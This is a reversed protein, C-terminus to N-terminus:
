KFEELYLKEYEKVISKWSYNEIVFDATKKSLIEMDVSNQIAWNIKDSLDKADKNKFYLVENNPFVTKNEPIDSCIIKTKISAAELLMISMGESESPFIFLSSNQILGLLNPLSSIYGVFIINLGKYKDKLGSVYESAHSIDGAIVISNKYDIKSLAELMTHAGKTSMIRRAAFMIYNDTINYKELINKSGTYDIRIDDSIGNPIYVIKRKKYRREYYDALDKSISTLKAGSYIYVREMFHFYLRGIFSWKDRKYPAEHSTLIVKFKLRLIPVFFACDTKHAHIITNKNKVFLLIHFTCITYYIFVGFAGFPLEPKEIVKVGPINDKAEPDQYCFILINFNKSLLKMLNEAVRSTGGKSPFYKIGFFVIRKKDLDSKM